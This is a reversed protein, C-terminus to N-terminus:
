FTLLLVFRIRDSTPRDTDTFQWPFHWWDAYSIQFTYSRGSWLYLSVWFHLFLDRSETWVWRPSEVTMLFSISIVNMHSIMHGVRTSSSFKFDRDLGALTWFHFHTLGDAMWPFPCNKRPSCQRHHPREDLNESEQKCEQQLVSSILNLM